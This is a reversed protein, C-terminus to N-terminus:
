GAAGNAFGLGTCVVSPTHRTFFLLSAALMIRPINAIAERNWGGDARQREEQLNQLSLHIVGAAILVISLDAVPECLNSYKQEITLAQQFLGIATIVKISLPIAPIADRM